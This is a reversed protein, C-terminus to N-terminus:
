MTQGCSIVRHGVSMKNNLELHLADIPALPQNQVRCLDAMNSICPPLYRRGNQRTFGDLQQIRKLAGM